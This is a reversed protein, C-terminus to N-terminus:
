MTNDNDNKSDDDNGNDGNVMHKQRQSHFYTTM